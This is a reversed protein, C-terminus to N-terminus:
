NLITLTLSYSKQEQEKLLQIHNKHLFENDEDSCAASGNWPEICVYTAQKHYKTWFAITDFDHYTAFVGKNTKPNIVSVEHSTPRDFWLADEKFLDHTLPINKGDDAPFPCETNKDFQLAELDYKRYGHLQPEPFRLVYDEFSEGEYLPCNIAPHLGLCYAIQKTDKNHVTVTFDLTKEKLTYSVLLEFQYPYMSAPIDTNTMSFTVSTESQEKIHFETTRCPGHKPIEYTTGDIITKNDRCNGVIPFLIPSCSSWVDPNRQWIYETNYEDKFSILQAGLSDIKASCVHNKIEIIM